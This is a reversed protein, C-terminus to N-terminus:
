QPTNTQASEIKWAEGDRRLEFTWQRPETRLQGSGVKGVYSALGRCSANATAGRVDINCDNFAVNQSELGAFARALAREDVSPWVERAASADLADYARAYRDLVSSVLTEERRVPAVAAAAEATASEGSSVAPPRVLLPGGRPLVPSAVIAERRPQPAVFDDPIETRPLDVIAEALTITRDPQPTSPERAAPPLDPVLRRAPEERRALEEGITGVADVPEPETAVPVAVVVPEEAQSPAPETDTDADADADADFIRADTDVAQLALAPTDVSPAAPEPTPSSPMSRVFDLTTLLTVGVVLLAVAGFTRSRFFGISAPAPMAAPLLAVRGEVEALEPADPRLERAEELALRAAVGDGRASAAAIGDLLARFRREQIRHEFGIWSQADVGIPVFRDPTSGPRTEKPRIPYSAESM